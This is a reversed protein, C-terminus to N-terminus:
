PPAPDAPVAVATRARTAPSHCSATVVMDISNLRRAIMGTHSTTNPNNANISDGIVKAISLADGQKVYDKAELM